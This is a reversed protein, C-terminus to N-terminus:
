LTVLSFWSFNTVRYNKKHSAKHGLYFIAKQKFSENHWNEFFDFFTPSSFPWKQLAERSIVSIYRNYLGMGM